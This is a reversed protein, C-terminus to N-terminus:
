MMAKSRTKEMSEIKAAKATTPMDGRSPSVEGFNHITIAPAEAPMKSKRDKVVFTIWNSSCFGM